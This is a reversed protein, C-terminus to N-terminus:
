YPKSADKPRKLQVKLRKNGIQFGNMAQIASHASENTTYSVFGFCKSLNTQKDIFVKASVITGFPQFTQTLDTDSFEQPLHYIFLNAGDPGSSPKYTGDPTKIKGVRQTDALPSNTTAQYPLFPQGIGLPQSFTSLGPSGILQQQQQLSLLQQQLAVLNYNNHPLHSLIQPTGITLPSGVLGEVSNPSQIQPQGLPPYASSIGTSNVSALSWLNTQIQQVKKQEKEKQTDAFKVVMPSSCGEMTLSHHMAKIAVIAVQRNSFTVFACGRSIGNDDRLVTCEEIPGFQIFMDKIDDENLKKCVMGIFLKRENRNETDAPKMQIPHHMGPMTKVNHLDNQADLAHKRKYFTVFCCGRSVGTAKDRLVNLQHVPGFQEFFDKLADEDMSRPVQGVFMKIADDDPYDDVNNDSINTTADSNASLKGALMNLSTLM